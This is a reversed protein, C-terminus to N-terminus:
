EKAARHLQQLDEPHKLLTGLFPLRKLPVELIGPQRDTAVCLVQLWALLEGTAPPKERVSQRIQLFCRLATRIFEDNLDPFRGEHSKVAKELLEDTMEIYHCVCRRLFAPPLRREDNSTIFVLPRLERPCTVPTDTERVTFEMHEIEHLLDNPFDRPAKDIEDILLVAPYKNETAWQFAQWLARPEVYRHKDLEALRQESYMRALQADRFYRVTDFEYLLDAATSTSKVQFHFLKTGLQHAAFYAAQTKGTGPEGTLLLPEGVAIATNIAGALQDDPRYCPATGALSTDVHVWPRDLLRQRREHPLPDRRRPDILDFEYSSM